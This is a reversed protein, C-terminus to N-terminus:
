EGGGVTGGLVGCRRSEGILVEVQRHPSVLADKGQRAQERIGGHLEGGCTVEIACPKGAGFVREVGM